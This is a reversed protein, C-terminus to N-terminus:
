CEKGVRREESRARFAKKMKRNIFITHMTKALLLFTIVLGLYINMWLLVGITGLMTIFCVIVDNAARFSLEGIETIDGTLRALLQGTKVNDFYKFSMKEIHKFLACRMDNDINASMIHGHYSIMYILSCNGIYLLLLFGADYLLKNVNKNPLVESLIQRVMMPFILDMLGVILSGFIISYLVKKYPQYYKLFSIIM